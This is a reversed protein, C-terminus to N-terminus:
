EQWFDEIDQSLFLEIARVFLADPVAPFANRCHELWEDENHNAIIKWIEEQM